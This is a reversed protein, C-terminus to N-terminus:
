EEEPETAENQATYVRERLWKNINDLIPPAINFIETQPDLRLLQYERLFLLASENDKMTNMINQSMAEYRRQTTQVYNDSAIRAVEESAIGIMMFREWDTSALVLQHDELIELKAGKEIEDRIIPYSGSNLRELTALSKESNDTIAEHFIYNPKGLSNKIKLLQEKAEQWYQVFMDKFESPAKDSSFILPIIYLKKKGNFQEVSPKELKGLNESM